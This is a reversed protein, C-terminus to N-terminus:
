NGCPNELVESKTFCSTKSLHMGWLKNWLTSYELELNSYHAFPVGSRTGMTLIHCEVWLELCPNEFVVLTSFSTLKVICEGCHQKWSNPTHCNGRLKGNPKEIEELDSFWSSLQIICQGCHQKVSLHIQCKGELEVCPHEFVVLMSTVQVICEWCHQIVSNLWGTRGM